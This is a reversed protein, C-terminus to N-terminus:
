HEAQRPKQISLKRGSDQVGKLRMYSYKEDKFTNKKRQYKKFGGKPKDHYSEM